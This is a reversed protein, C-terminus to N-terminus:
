ALAPFSAKESLDSLPPTDMGSAEAQTENPLSLSAEGNSGSVAKKEIDTVLDTPTRILKEGNEAFDKVQDFIQPYDEFIYKKVNAISAAIPVGEDSLNEWDVILHERFKEAEFVLYENTAGIAADKARDRLEDKDDDPAVLGLKLLVARQWDFADMASRFEHSHASRILIRWPKGDGGDIPEGARATGKWYRTVMWRPAEVEDKAAELAKLSAM